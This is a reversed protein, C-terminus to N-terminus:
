FEILNLYNMSDKQFIRTFINMIDLSYSKRKQIFIGFLDSKLFIEINEAFKSSIGAYPDFQSHFQM